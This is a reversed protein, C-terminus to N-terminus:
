TPSVCFAFLVVFYSHNVILFLIGFIRFDSNLNDGSMFTCVVSVFQFNVFMHWTTFYRDSM